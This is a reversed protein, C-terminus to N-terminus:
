CVSQLREACVRLTEAPPRKWWNDQSFIEVEIAGAYGAREMSGRIRMNDVVGDGMMGRDLLLDRTPVLWDCVHFALLRGERGARAIQAELDPDWWVHYVDVAVGIAGSGAPDLAACLDLAQELTSLCARDACYMPHLPELALAVGATKAHELLLGVGELVQARAAPLDKSGEPLGGAVVVLCAAALEAAQDLARRNDELNAEFAARTAATIYTSRCFGSVKLGAARILSSVQRQSRGDLERRWPAIAGFGARAVADITQEIPTQHGLTATNISCLDLRGALARV